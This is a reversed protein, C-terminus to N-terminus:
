SNQELQLRLDYLWLKMKPCAISILHLFLRKLAAIKLIAVYLSLLSAGAANKVLWSGGIFRTIFSANEFVFVSCLLQLHHMDVLTSCINLVQVSLIMLKFAQMTYLFKFFYVSCSSWNMDEIPVM